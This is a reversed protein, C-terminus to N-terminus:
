KSEGIQYVSRLLWLTSQRYVEATTQIGAFVEAIIIGEDLAERADNIVRDATRNTIEVEREYRELRRPDACRQDQTCTTETM